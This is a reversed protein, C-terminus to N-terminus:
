LFDQCLIPYQNKGSRSSFIDINILLTEIKRIETNDQTIRPTISTLTQTRVWFQSLAGVTGREREAGNRFFSINM